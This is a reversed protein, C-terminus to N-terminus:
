LMTVRYDVKLNSANPSSVFDGNKVKQEFINTHMIDVYMLQSLGAHTIDFTSQDVIILDGKNYGTNLVLSYDTNIDLEVKDTNDLVTLYIKDLTQEYSLQPDNIVLQSGGEITKSQGYRYPKTMKITITGTTKITGADDVALSTVTGYRVFENEDAFFFAQENGQLVYKLRTYKKNFDDIDVGNLEYKITIEHSDLKSSVFLEGDSVTNVTNVTRTYNERGSVNLTRYGALEKDLNVGGFTLAEPMLRELSSQATLPKFDYLNTM